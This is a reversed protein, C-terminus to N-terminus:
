CGYFKVNKFKRRVNDVMVKECGMDHFYKSQGGYFYSTEFFDLGFVKLLSPSKDLIMYLATLGSTFNIYGNFEYRKFLTEDPYFFPKNNQRLLRLFYPDIYFDSVMKVCPKTLPRTFGIHVDNNLSLMFHTFIDDVDHPLFGNYLFVDMKNGLKSKFKKYNLAGNNIRVVIDSSDIETSFNNELISSGNCVLAVTKDTFLKM